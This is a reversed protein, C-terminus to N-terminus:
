DLSLVSHSKKWVQRLGVKLMKDKLWSNMSLQKLLVTSTVFKLARSPLLGM